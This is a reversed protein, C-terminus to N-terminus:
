QKNEKIENDGGSHNSVAGLLIFGHSTSEPPPCVCVHGDLSKGGNHSQSNFLQLLALSCLAIALESWECGTAIVTLQAESSGCGLHM